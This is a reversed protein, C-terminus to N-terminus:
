LIGTSQAERAFRERLRERENPDSLESLRITKIAVTRGIAPDEARYVLGMAGRGVEGVVKYRGIQKM